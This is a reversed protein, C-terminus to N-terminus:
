TVGSQSKMMGEVFITFKSLEAEAAAAKAVLSVAVSFVLIPIIFLNKTYSKSMVALNLM